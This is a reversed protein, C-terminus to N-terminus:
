TLNGSPIQIIKPNQFPVNIYVYGYVYMYMYLCIYIYMYIYTYIYICGFIASELNVISPSIIPYSIIIYRYIYIIYMYMHLIKGVDINHHAKPIYWFPHYWCMSMEICFNHKAM